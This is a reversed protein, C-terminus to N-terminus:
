LNFLPLPQRVEGQESKSTSYEQSYANSHYYNTGPPHDVPVTFRYVVSEYEVPANDDALTATALHASSNTGAIGTINNNHKKM